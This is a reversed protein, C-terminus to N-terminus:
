HIYLVAIVIGMSNEIREKKNVRCKPFRREAQTDIQTGTRKHALIYKATNSSDNNM